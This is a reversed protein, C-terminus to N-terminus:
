EREIAGMGQMHWDLLIVDPIEQGCADLAEQGNAATDVAIARMTYEGPMVNGGNWEYPPAARQGVLGGNVQLDVSVM